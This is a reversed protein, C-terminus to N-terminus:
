RGQGVRLASRRRKQRSVVLVTAVSVGVLVVPAVAVISWLVLNGVDAM